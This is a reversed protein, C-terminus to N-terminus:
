AEATETATETEVPVSRDNLVRYATLVQAESATAPIVLVGLDKAVISAFEYTFQPAQEAIINTIATAQAFNMVAGEKRELNSVSVQSSGILKAWESTTVALEIRVRAFFKGLATFGKKVQPKRAPKTTQPKLVDTM